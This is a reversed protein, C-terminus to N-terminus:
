PGCQLSVDLHVVELAVTALDAKTINDMLMPGTLIKRLSRYIFVNYPNWTNFIIVSRGM